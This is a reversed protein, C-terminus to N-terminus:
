LAIFAAEKLEDRQTRHTRSKPGIEQRGCCVDHCYIKMITFITVIQENFVASFSNTKCTFYFIFVLQFHFNNHSLLCERKKLWIKMNM